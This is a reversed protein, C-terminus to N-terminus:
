LPYRPDDTHSRMVASNVNLVRRLRKPLQGPAGIETCSVEWLALYDEVAVGSRLPWRNVAGLDEVCANSKELEALIGLTAPGEAGSEGGRLDLAARATRFWTACTKNPAQAEYRKILNNRYQRILNAFSADGDFPSVDQEWNFNM